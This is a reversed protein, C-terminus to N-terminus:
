GFPLVRTFTITLKSSVVRIQLQSRPTRGLRSPSLRPVQGALSVKYHYFKGM